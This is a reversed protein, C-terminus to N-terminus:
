KIGIFGHKRLLQQGEPSTVLKIFSAARASNRSDKVAAIPYLIKGHSGPAATAAVVADRPRGAADSAFVVGADVEGRAVYDMIQRVTEGYILRSKIADAIRYHAFTEAAYRGAPSTKPNPIAIRKVSPNLLDAFSTLKAGSKPTILVLSNGAFDARTATQILGKAALDDMDKQAASAFVDIPAGGAIQRGLDGSAGFNFRVKTGPNKQEYAKGIEEFAGKLSMAASVTLEAAAAGSTCTMLLLTGAILTLFLRKM